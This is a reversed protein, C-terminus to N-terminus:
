DPKIWHPVGALCAHQLQSVMNLCMTQPELLLHTNHVSPRISWASLLKRKNAKKCFVRLDAASRILLDSKRPLYPVTLKRVTKFKYCYFAKRPSLHGGVAERTEHHLIRPPYLQWSNWRWCACSEDPWHLVNYLLSPGERRLNNWPLTM